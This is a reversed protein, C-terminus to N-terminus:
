GEWRDIGWMDNFESKLAERVTGWDPHEGQRPDAHEYLSTGDFFGLGHEDRPFHAPVWDLIVGINGYAEALNPAINIATQWAAIAGELDGNKALKNGRKLHFQEGGLQSNISFAKERYNNAEESKGQLKFVCALNWYVEAMEPQLDLAKQYNIIAEDLRGLRYFMSGFNAFAEALNPNIELARSYLGMAEEVKGRGQLANGWTVYARALNPEDSVAKQCFAIAETWNGRAYHLEARELLTRGDASKNQLGGSNSNVPPQAVKPTPNLNM